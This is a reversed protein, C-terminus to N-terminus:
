ISGNFDSVSYEDGEVDNSIARRATDLKAKLKSYEKLAELEAELSSTNAAGDVVSNTTPMEFKETRKIIIDCKADVESLKKLIEETCTRITRLVTRQNLDLKSELEKLMEYKTM